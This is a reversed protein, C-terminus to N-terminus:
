KVKKAPIVADIKPWGNENHSLVLQVFRGNVADSDVTEGAEILAKETATLIGAMTATFNSNKGMATSTLKNVRFPVLEGKGDEVLIPEAKAPDNSDMVTFNFGIREGDDKGFKGNETAWEPHSEQAINDIRADVVGDDFEPATASSRSIQVGM